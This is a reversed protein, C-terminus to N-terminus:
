KGDIVVTCYKAALEREKEAASIRSRIEDESVITGALKARNEIRKRM